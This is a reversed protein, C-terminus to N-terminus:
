KVTNRYWKITQDLGQEFTYSPTWGLERRIKSADTAYRLDHGPRDRVFQILSEPKGLRKLIEKVIDINRKEYGTGIMYTEGVKGKILISELASCHDEVYIWDRINIGSGYVPIPVDNLANLIVKPIFKEKNQYRGYNNGCNSITVPIDYTNYYANVLHDACAKTASYPNKPNYRTTENFRESEDLKLSGFFKM